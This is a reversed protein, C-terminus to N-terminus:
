LTETITVYFQTLYGANQARTMANVATGAIGDYINDGGGFDYLDTITVTKSDKNPKTYDCNHIAYYLDKDTKSGSNTFEIGGSTSTGNAVNKFKESQKVISGNVPVYNSYKVKNAKMHALLEASLKYGNVKFFAIVSAVETAYIPHVEYTVVDSKSLLYEDRLEELTLIIEEANKIENTDSSNNLIAAYEEIMENLETVVDTQNEALENEIMAVTDDQVAHPEAAYAMTPALMVITMAVCLISMFFKKM